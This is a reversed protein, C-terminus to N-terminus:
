PFHFPNHCFALSHVFVVRGQTVILARRALFFLPSPCFVEYVSSVMLTAFVLYFDILLSMVPFFEM